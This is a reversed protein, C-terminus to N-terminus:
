ILCNEYVSWDFYKSETVKKKQYSLYPIDEKNCFLRVCFESSDVRQALELISTNENATTRIITKQDETLRKCVKVYPLNEKILIRRVNQPKLNFKRAIQGITKTGDAYKKIEQM